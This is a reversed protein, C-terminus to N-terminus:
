CREGYASVVLSLDTFDVRGDGNADGPITGPAGVAGFNSLVLSLDVFDIVGDGDADGPCPQGPILWGVAAEWAPAETLTDTRALELAYRGPALGQVRVLQINDAPGASAVNGGTYWQAGAEGVLPTPAGPDDLRFLTLTFAATQTANYLPWTAPVRRNWTVLFTAEPASEPLWFRWSRREGADQRTLSWGIRPTAAGVPQTAGPWEGGSLVAHSRDIQLSDVGFTPDLPSLSMGRMPGSPIPNNTWTPRKVAGTLLAARITISRRVDPNSALAPLTAATEFLLAAASSVVPVANSVAEGPPLPVVIHPITRGPHDLQGPTLGGGWQGSALGVALGNYSANLLWYNVGAWGHVSLFDDRNIADDLRRLINVDGPGPPASVFGVWSNNMVRVGGPLPPGLPSTNTGSYRLYQNIVLDLTNWCYVRSGGTAMALSGYYYSGVGTAHSSVSGPAQPFFSVGAFFTATPDPLYGDAGERAEVQGLPVGAGTPASPGLRQQLATLGLQTYDPLATARTATLAFLTLAAIPTTRFCGITM